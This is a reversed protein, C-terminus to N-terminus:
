IVFLVSDTFHLTLHTVIQSDRTLMGFFAHARRGEAEEDRVQVVVKELEQNHGKTPLAGQAAVAWTPTTTETHMPFSLPPLSLFLKSPNPHPKPNPSVLYTEIDKHYLFDALKM